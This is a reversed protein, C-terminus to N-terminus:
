TRCPCGTFKEPCRRVGGAPQPTLAPSLLVSGSEGVSERVLAALGDIFTRSCGVTAVRRFVPVGATEAVHRYEIDLEVLTESHESVFATPVLIVPVRDQGARILESKTEPGIWKLPGVRSQYCCIWDFEQNQRNSKLDSVVAAATKECQHQYPDGRDVM